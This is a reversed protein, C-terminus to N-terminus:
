NGYSMKGSKIKALIMNATKENYSSRIISLVGPDIDIKNSTNEVPQASQGQATHIGNFQPQQKKQTGGEVLEPHRLKTMEIAARLMKPDGKFKGNADNANIKDIDFNDNITQLLATYFPTNKEIHNTLNNSHWISEYEKQAASVQQQTQYENKYENIQQEAYFKAKKDM